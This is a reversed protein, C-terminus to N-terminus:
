LLVARAADRATAPDVAALVAEAMEECQGLSV